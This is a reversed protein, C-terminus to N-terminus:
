EQVYMGTYRFDIQHQRMNSFYTKAEKSTSTGLGKYYKIGWGKGNNHSEKWREYEPLTYFSRENGAKKCVVIPTIFERM